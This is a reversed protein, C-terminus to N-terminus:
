ALGKLSDIFDVKYFRQIFALEENTKQPPALYVAWKKVPYKGSIIMQLVVGLRASVWEKAVAGYVIVFQNVQKLREELITINAEPNDEEPIIYPLINKEILYHGLNLAAKQDKRHTDLLVAHGETDEVLAQKESKIRNIISFIHQNLDTPYSKIFEYNEDSKEENELQYLFDKHGADEIDHYDLDNPTWILQNIGTESVVKAQQQPYSLDLGEQVEQGPYQDFLHVALACEQVADKVAQDHKELEYPPPVGGVVAIGEQNLSQIIKKKTTKLPDSVSGMFVKLVQEDSPKSQNQTEELEERIDGQIVSPSSTSFAQITDYISSVLSRVGGLFAKNDVAIPWDVDDPDFFEFGTRGAFLSGWERRPIKNLLVNFIRHYDGVNLGQNEKSAKENFHLLEKQCYDSAKYGWSHMTIFLASQDIKESIVKNFLQNDGLELDRWIKVMGLRGFRQGLCIELEQHFIDVWCKEGRTPRANDVHAYSIFIDFEFGSLYAM